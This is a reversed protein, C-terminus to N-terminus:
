CKRCYVMNSDKICIYGSPSRAWVEGNNIIIEKATFITGKKYVANASDSKSTANERGNQTLQNVKIPSYNTSPGSRVFMNYDCVYNSIPYEENVIYIKPRLAGLIGQYSINVQTFERIGNQNQSLFIGTGNGNDKRFMAIHSNPCTPCKGWIAFDGDNMKNVPVKEFYNNFGLVDFNDWISMALGTPSCITKYSINFGLVTRCFHKFADVCQPGYVKDEDFAKGIVQLYYEHPTM